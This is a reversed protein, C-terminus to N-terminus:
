PQHKCKVTTTLIAEVEGKLAAGVIDENYQSLPSTVRAAFVCTVRLAACSFRVSVSLKRTVFYL